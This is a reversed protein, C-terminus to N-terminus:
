LTVWHDPLISAFSSCFIDHTNGSLLTTEGISGALSTIKLAIEKGSMYAIVLAYSYEPM